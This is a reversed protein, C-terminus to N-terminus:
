EEEHLAVDEPPLYMMHHIASVMSENWYVSPVTKTEFFVTYIDKWSEQSIKQTM